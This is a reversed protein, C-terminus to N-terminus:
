ELLKNVCRDDESSQSTSSPLSEVESVAYQVPGPVSDNCDNM